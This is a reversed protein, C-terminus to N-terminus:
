TDEPFVWKPPEMIKKRLREEAIELMKELPTDQIFKTTAARYETHPCKDGLVCGNVCAEACNITPEM